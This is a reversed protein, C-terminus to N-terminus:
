KKSRPQNEPAIHPLLTRLISNVERRVRSDTAVLDAIRECSYLVTSHNRGGLMEGIQQLPHDIEKHAIYMAVQRATSVERSRGRGSLDEPTFGYYEATAMIVDELSTSPERDEADQLKELASEVVNDDVVNQNLMAAAVVKNLAGELERINGDTQEAIRELLDLPLRNEFGRLATKIELIDIRTLFDPPLLEATLGGEFRSKLRKDLQKIQGPPQNATIVIQAGSDYLTNFTHFFEEQTSEKGAIFQIDDILLIDVNRYKSRLEDTHHTRIAAVLDNTFREASAFLVSYGREHCANGIAHLLHSKGLGVGGHIYLPNFQTAPSEAISQAAVHALRNCEGVAYTDFTQRPSVGTEGPSLREFTPTAETKKELPALLPGASAIDPDSRQEPIVIFRVEVTQQTIRSLTRVIVKKLRHELWERAYINHVGIVFTGDEHAILHANRLWTDFTERPLQLQLEGHATRWVDAPSRSQSNMRNHAMLSPHWVVGDLPM